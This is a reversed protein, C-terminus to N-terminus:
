TLSKGERPKACKSPPLWNGWSFCCIPKERRANQSAFNSRPPSEGEPRNSAFSRVEVGGRFALVKAKREECKALCFQEPAPVGRRAPEFCLKESRSGWSFGISQSKKGRMKRPLIARLPVRVGVSNSGPSKLDGTDVM